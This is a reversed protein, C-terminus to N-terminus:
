LVFPGDFVNSMKRTRFEGESIPHQTASRYGIHQFLHPVRM